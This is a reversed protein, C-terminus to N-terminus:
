ELWLPGTNKVRNPKSWYPQCGLRIDSRGVSYSSGMLSLWIDWNWRCGCRRAVAKGAVAVMKVSSGAHGTNIFSSNERWMNETGHFDTWHTGHQQVRVSLHVSAVFSVTAKQLKIFADLFV